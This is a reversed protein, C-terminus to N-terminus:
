TDFFAEGSKSAAEHMRLTFTRDYRLKPEAKIQAQWWSYKSEDARPGSSVAAPNVDGRTPGGPRPNGADVGLQAFFAKPSQAAVGQLFEVSVGLEQAKQKVVENAKADSGYLEILRSAVTNVNNAVQNERATKQIEEKIRAALDEETFPKPQETKEPPQNNGQSQQTTNTRRQEELLEEVTKRGNLQDRFDQNETKLQGIFQDANVYAKALDEITAYKKGEGVLTELPNDLTSTDDFVSM